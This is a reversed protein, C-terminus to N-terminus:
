TGDDLALQELMPEGLKWADAWGAEPSEFIFVYLTNTKPNAVTLAHTETTGSADTDKLECGFERFSGVTRDFTAVSHRAAMNVIMAQGRDVASDKLHFVNLTLGTQFAAGKRRIDEKTIFYAVTDKDKEAKFFWGNPKLVAAKLEPIKQWTFGAPPQPLDAAPLAAQFGLSAFALILFTRGKM